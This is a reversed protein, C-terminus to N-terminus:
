SSSSRRASKGAMAQRECHDELAYLGTILRAADYRNLAGLHERVDPVPVGPWEVICQAVLCLDLLISGRPPETGGNLEAAHADRRWEDVIRPQRVRVTDCHTENGQDDIRVYGDALEVVATQEGGITEVNIGEVAFEALTHAYTLATRQDDTLDEREALSALEAVASARDFAKKM